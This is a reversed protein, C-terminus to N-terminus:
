LFQCDALKQIQFQEPATKLYIILVDKKAFSVQAIVMALKSSYFKFLPFSNNVKMSTQNLSSKNNQNGIISDDLELLNPVAVRNRNKKIM